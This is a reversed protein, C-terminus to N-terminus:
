KKKLIKNKLEILWIFLGKFLPYRRYKKKLWRDSNENLNAFFEARFRNEQPSSLLSPNYKAAISIDFKQKRCNSISNFIENGKKSHVIVFSTGNKDYFDPMIRWVSWFDAATFDSIRNVDRFKCKHCSPRLCTDHNFLQLFVDNDTSVCYEKGNKFKFMLSYKEWGFYKRRSYVTEVKSSNKKEVYKIYIEWVKPSPVGHCIFDMTYLNAYDKKLFSHLGNIQCPTGTFLVKEGNKLLEKCRSFSNGISSQVYKSGQMPELQAKTTAEIHVATQNDGFVCGFVHGGDEVIKESLASFFAGSSSNFRKQANNNIFAYGVRQYDTPQTKRLIPCVSVCLECNTCKEREVFPYSFGEDDPKLVICKQPCINECAYCGCCDSKQNLKIM